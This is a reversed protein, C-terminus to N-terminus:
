ITSTVRIDRVSFSVDYTMHEKNDQGISIDEIAKPIMGYFTIRPYYGPFKGRGNAMLLMGTRRAAEQNDKFVYGRKTNVVISNLLTGTNTGGTTSPVYIDGFWDMLYRMVLGREEEIFKATITDTYEIDEVYQDGNIRKISLKNPGFTLDTVHIKAMVIDVGMGVIDMGASLASFSASASGPSRFILFDFKSRPQVNMKLLYKFAQQNYKQIGQPVLPRDLGLGETLQLAV